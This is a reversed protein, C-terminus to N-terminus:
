LGPDTIKLCPSGDIRRTLFLNSPKVDRHVIGVAHAEALAECAQLVYDVTDRVSLVGDRKILTSLDVGELREMVLYPTEDELKGVDLVRVVHDGRIRSAMRAERFFRAVSDADRAADPHLIKIAVREGITVHRAGVVYGMGGTGLKEEIRYKGAVIEGHSRVADAM